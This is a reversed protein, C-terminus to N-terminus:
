KARNPAETDIRSPWEIPDVRASRVNERSTDVKDSNPVARTLEVNDTRSTQLRPDDSDTREACRKAAEIDMQPTSRTPLEKDTSLKTCKPDDIATREKAQKAEEKDMEKGPLYRPNTGRDGNETRANARIPALKANIDVARKPAEMDTNSKRPKPEDSETRLKELNLEANATNEAEHKPLEKDKRPTARTPEDSDSKPSTRSLLEMDTRSLMHIAGEACNCRGTHVILQSVPVLSSWNLVPEVFTMATLADPPLKCPVQAESLMM